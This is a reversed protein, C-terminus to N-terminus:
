GGRAALYAEILRIHGADKPRNMLRKWRLVNELTVYRVGGIVDATDILEDTDWEGPGWADFVEILGEALEIKDGGYIGKQGLGLAAAREWAAGRAIVDLDHSTTLGRAMMPGSGFVAFDGPPLGLALLRGILPQDKLGSM